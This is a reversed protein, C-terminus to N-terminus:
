CPGYFPQSVGLFGRHMYKHLLHCCESTTKLLNEIQPGMVRMKNPLTTVDRAFDFSGELCRALDVIKKDTEFM